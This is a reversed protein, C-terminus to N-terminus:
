RHKDTALSNYAADVFMEATWFAGPTNYRPDYDLTPRAAKVQELTMGKKIMAQIRDRV